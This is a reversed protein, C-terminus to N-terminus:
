RILNFYGKKFRKDQVEGKIIPLYEVVFSYVGVKCLSGNLTGDWQLLPNISKFLLEGWRNYVSFSYSDLDCNLIPSIVENLGDGNPTFANPMFLKCNCVGDLITISDSTSCGNGNDVEIWYDNPDNIILTRNISGTSWLYSCNICSPAELVISESDCLFIDEGLEVPTTPIINIEITDSIFNNNCSSFGIMWYSGSQTPIIGQSIEGTSWLYSDFIQGNIDEILISSGACFDRDPGLDLSLNASCNPFQILNIPNLILGFDTSNFLADFRTTSLITSNTALDQIQPTPISTNCDNTFDTKLHAIQTNPPFTNTNSVAIVENQDNICFDTPLIDSGIRGYKVLSLDNGFQFISALTFSQNTIVTTFGGGSNAIIKLPFSQTQISRRLILNGQKDIKCIDSNGSSSNQEGYIYGDAVEALSFFYSGASSNSISSTWTHAGDPDTKIFTSGTRLLFGNDSTHIATGWIGGRELFRTWITQGSNGDLKTLRLFISQTSIATVNGYIFLDGSNNVVVSYDYSEFSNATNKISKSWLLNGLVDLRAVIPFRINNEQASFLIVYDGNNLQKFDVAAFSFLNQNQAELSLAFKLQGCRDFAALESKSLSFTTHDSGMSQIRNNLGYPADINRVSGPQAIGLFPLFMLLIFCRFSM